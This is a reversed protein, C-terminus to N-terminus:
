PRPDSPMSTFKSCSVLRRAYFQSRRERLPVRTRKGKSGRQRPRRGASAVVRRAGGGGGGGGGGGEGGGGGGLGGSNAVRWGAVMTQQGAPPQSPSIGSDRQRFPFLPM